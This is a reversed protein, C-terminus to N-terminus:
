ELLTQRVVLGLQLAPINGLREGGSIDVGGHGSLGPHQERRFRGIEQLAPRLPHRLGMGPSNAVHLHHVEDLAREAVVLRGLRAM